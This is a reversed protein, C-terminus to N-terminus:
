SAGARFRGLSLIKKAAALKGRRQRNEYDPMAPDDLLMANLINLM